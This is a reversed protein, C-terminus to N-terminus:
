LIYQLLLILEDKAALCFPGGESRSLWPYNHLGHSSINLPLSVGPNHAIPKTVTYITISTDTRGQCGFLFGAESRSLWPYNHLGHSSINLPLSVGPNYGIPKPVTYITISTDTRGQCGFLFGAESRSLWPYNHLGHSSINLPLSVGPNHGIPMPVTYIAGM